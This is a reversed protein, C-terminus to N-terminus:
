SFAGAKVEIETDGGHQLNFEPKNTIVAQSFTHRVSGEPTKGVLVFAIGRKKKLREIIKINEVTNYVKFKLMAVATSVDESTVGETVGNGASQPDVEIEPQDDQYSVSNPVVFLQDGDAQVSADTVKSVM